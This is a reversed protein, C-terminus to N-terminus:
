CPCALKRLAAKARDRVNKNWFFHRRNLSVLYSEAEKLGIDEVVKINEILLKNKRGFLSRIGLLRELAAKRTLEDKALIVLAQRKLFFDGEQLITFLFDNDYGPLKQMARLVEIKIINNSFSYINKLIERASLSDLGGLSEVVRGLFDIDTHKRKLNEYFSPLYQPFFKLFLKLIYTNVIGENFIKNIYFDYGLVSKELKNIFYELDLPPTEKFARNEIFNCICSKLGKFAESLSIDGKIKKDLTVWLFKLYDLNEESSKSCEKLLYESILSLKEQDQETALLNLLTFRYNVDLVDHEFPFTGELPSEDLLPYLAHRYLELTSTRDSISFLEKVKKRIQPNTKLLGEKKLREKLSSAVVKHKDEEILRSFVIFSLYNFSDDTLIEDRLIETLADKDLNNFFAKLNQLKDEQSIGKDKLILRLLGKNCNYFRDKEKEKLYNLFNYINQRLQEDLLLDKTKLRGFIKEFNDAFENIKLRDEKELVRKFLYAWADKLEEGEGRLLESYDLEETYIHSINKTNLINQIGAQRLIEKIPLSISSLFDILEEITLGERFEISKIKRFHLLSALEVYPAAKDWYRADLFLSDPAIDIKIPNLFNFLSDLKQKFNEVSKIFYPHDKSYATANSFVIRLGRLFDNLAEEKDV